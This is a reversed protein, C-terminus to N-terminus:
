RCFITEHLKIWFRLIHRFWHVVKTCTVQSSSWTGFQSPCIANLQRVSSFESSPTGRLVGGDRAVTSRPPGSVEPHRTSIDVNGGGQRGTGAQGWTQSSSACSQWNHSSPFYNERTTAWREIQRKRARDTETEAQIGLETRSTRKYTSHQKRWYMNPSFFLKWLVERSQEHPM